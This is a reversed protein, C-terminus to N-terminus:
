KSIGEYFEIEGEIKELPIINATSKDNSTREDRNVIQDGDDDLYSSSDTKSPNGCSSFLIFSLLSILTKM